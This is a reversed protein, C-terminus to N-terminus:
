NKSTDPYLLIPSSGHTLEGRGGGGGARSRAGLAVGVGTAPAVERTTRRGMGVNGGSSSRRRQETAGGCPAQEAAAAATVLGTTAVQPLSARADGDEKHRSSETLDGRKEGGRKPEMRGVM